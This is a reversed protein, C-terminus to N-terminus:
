LTNVTYKQFTDWQEFRMSVHLCLPRTNQLNKGSIALLSIWSRVELLKVACDLNGYFVSRHLATWGSELDKAGVDVGHDKVLWELIDSKGCSAAFHLATRGLEDPRALEPYFSQAYRRLMKRQSPPYSWNLTSLSAVNQHATWDHITHDQVMTAIPFVNYRSQWFPWSIRLSKRQEFLRWKADVRIYLKTRPSM